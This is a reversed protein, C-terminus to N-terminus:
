AAHESAAAALIRQYASLPVPLVSLRNGRRLLLFDDMGEWDKMQSLTVAAPFREVFAFERLWWRPAQPDSKPDHYDSAPDFQSPDPLAVSDVRALGVAGPVACSSHYVL